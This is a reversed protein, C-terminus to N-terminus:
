KVPCPKAYEFITRFDRVRKTFSKNGNRADFATALGKLEADLWGSYAAVTPKAEGGLEMLKPVRIPVTKKGTEAFQELLLRAALYFDFKALPDASALAEPLHRDLLKVARSLNDTLTLGVIYKAKQPLFTSQRGILQYGTTFCEMARKVNGLRLFPLVVGAYTCEPVISCSMRGSLIPKAKVAADDDGLFAYLDVNGDQVCALCDSLHDRPTLLMKANAKKAEAKDGMTQANDRRLTWYAHLTSGEAKYRRKMDDFLDDIRDKPITPFHAVHGLIWKYSWLLQFSDFRDPEADFKSLLWSFAVLAIDPRDGFIAAEVLTMRAHFSVDLDNHVDAIEVAREVLALQVPGHDLGEAEDLLDEIQEELEPM